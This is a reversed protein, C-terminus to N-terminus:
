KVYIIACDGLFTGGVAVTHRLLYRAGLEVSQDLDDAPERSVGGDVFDSAGGIDFQWASRQLATQRRQDAISPQNQFAAPAATSISDRLVNGHVHHGSRDRQAFEGCPHTHFDSDAGGGLSFGDPLRDTCGNLVAPGDSVVPSEEIAVPRVLGEVKRGPSPAAKALQATGGVFLTGGPRICPLDVMPQQDVERPAGAAQLAVGVGQQLGLTQELAAIGALALTRALRLHDQVVLGRDVEKDLVGIEDAEIAMGDQVQVRQERVVQEIRPCAATKPGNRHGDAARRIM